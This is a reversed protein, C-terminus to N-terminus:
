APSSSVREHGDVRGEHRPPVHLGSAMAQTFISRWVEDDRFTSVRRDLEALFDIAARSIGNAHAGGRCVVRRVLQMDLPDIRGPERLGEGSWREAHHLLNDKIAELIWREFRESVDEALFFLRLALRREGSNAIGAGEGLWALLTTESAGALVYGGDRYDLFFDTLAELYFETWVDHRGQLTRNAHFIEAARRRDIPGCRYFARRLSDIDCNSIAPVDAFKGLLRSFESATGNAELISPM